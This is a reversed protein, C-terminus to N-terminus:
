KKSRKISNSNLKDKIWIGLLILLVIGYTIPKILLSIIVLIIILKIIQIIFSPEFYDPNDYGFNVGAKIIEIFLVLLFRIYSEIVNLFNNINVFGESVVEVRELEIQTINTKDLIITINEPTMITSSDILSVGIGFAALLFLLGLISMLKM